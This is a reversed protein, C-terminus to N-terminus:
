KAEGEKTKKWILLREDIIPIFKGSYATTDSACNHQIKIIEPETPERWNILDVNFRYIRGQKRLTGILVALRGGDCLLDFLLEAGDILKQRFDKVPLNSL